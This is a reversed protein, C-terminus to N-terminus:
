THVSDPDTRRQDQEVRYYLAGNHYGVGLGLVVAFREHRNPLNLNRESESEHRADKFIGGARMYSYM